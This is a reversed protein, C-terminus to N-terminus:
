PKYSPNLGTIQLGAVDLHENRLVTIGTEALMGSITAAVQPQRWSHGYDHNGLVAATGLRGRAAHALVQALQEFQATSDYTVFDGTYVVIDPQLAQVTKLADILYHWDFRDGVHLDSLQVLTKGILASPLHRVPLPLRVHEVWYPEIHFTYLGGAVATGALGM